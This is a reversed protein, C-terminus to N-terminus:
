VAPVTVATTTTSPVAAEAAAIAATMADKVTQAQEATLKGQTVLSDLTTSLLQSNNEKNFGCGGRGRGGWGGKGQTLADKVAQAKDATLTGQTVLADIATTLVNDPREGKTGQTPTQATATALAATLADKVAQAEAGTITGATTLADIKSALMEAMRAERNGQDKAPTSATTTNTTASNTSTAPANTTTTQDAALAVTAVSGALLGAVVLTIITKRM